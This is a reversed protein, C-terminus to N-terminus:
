RQEKRLIRRVAENRGVIDPPQAAGVFILALIVALLLGSAILLAEM